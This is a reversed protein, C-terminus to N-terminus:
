LSSSFGKICFTIFTVFGKYNLRKGQMTAELEDAQRHENGSRLALLFLTMCVSKLDGGEEKDAFLKVHNKLDRLRHKQARRSLSLLHQRPRGGKNILLNNESEPSEKNVDQQDLEHNLCHTKFSDLRVQKGCGSIPCLLPLSQLASLFHKAPPTLDNSSCHFNCAPCYPGWVYSYKTICSRCSLHGCPPQVPDSLLHDCVICTFSFLFNEPLNESVLKISLHDKQCHTINRVWQERQTRVKRWNRRLPRQLPRREGVADGHDWRIRKALSQARPIAKRRKRGTRQYSTKRPSCLQCLSSHPKWEPVRTRSFSCVGGGRITTMWCRHCFCTPHVSESDETVDVKFVKHIVEPWSTLKCGMKRLSGKSAEDLDGHVDHVPGKVKRLTM